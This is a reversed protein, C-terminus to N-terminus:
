ELTNSAFLEEVTLRRQTLAQEFAYDLLTDLVTRNRSVSYPWPDPGLLAREEEQQAGFWALYSRRHDSWYRYAYQKSDEFLGVLRPAIDRDRELVENKVAIL